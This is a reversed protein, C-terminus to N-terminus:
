PQMGSIVIRVGSNIKSEILIRPEDKLKKRTDCLLSNLADGKSKYDSSFCWLREIIKKRVVYRGANELLLELLVTMQKNLHHIDSDGRLEQMAINFEYGEVVMVKDTLEYSQHTRILNEVNIKYEFMKKHGTLTNSYAFSLATQLTHPSINVSLFLIPTTHGKRIQEGLEFAEKESGEALDIIVAKPRETRFLALAQSIQHTHILQYNISLEEKVDRSIAQENGFLLLKEMNKEFRNVQTFVQIVLSIKKTELFIM